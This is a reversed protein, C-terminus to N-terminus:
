KSFNSVTGKLFISREAPLVADVSLGFRKAFTRVRAVDQTKASHKRAYEDRTLYTHHRSFASPSPLKKSRRLRMLVTLEEDGAVAEGVQSGPSRTKTSGPLEVWRTTPSPSKM